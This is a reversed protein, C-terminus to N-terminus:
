YGQLSKNIIDQMLCESIISFGFICLVLYLINSSGGVAGKIKDCREGMKYNWYIFYIGCTIVSFLFVMGGSTAEREGAIQNVEDNLKIVWYIGYIGCTIVSFIICLAINRPMIGYKSGKNQTEKMTAGQSDKTGRQQSSLSEGCTTCFKADDEKIKAGCKPCYKM